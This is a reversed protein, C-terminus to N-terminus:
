KNYGGGVGASANPRPAYPKREGGPGDRPPGRPPREAKYGAMRVTLKRFAEVHFLHMEKVAQQADYMTAFEIFGFGKSAQQVDRALSVSTVGYEAFLDYLDKEVFTYPFNGVFVEVRDNRAYRHFNTEAMIRKVEGLKVDSLPILQNTDDVRVIRDMTQFWEKECVGCRVRKGRGKLESEALKYATKCDGCVCFTVGAQEYAPPPVPAIPAAPRGSTVPAAVGDSAMQLFNLRHSYRNSSLQFSHHHVVLLTLVVCYLMHATRIGFSETIRM